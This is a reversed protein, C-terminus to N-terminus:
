EDKNKPPKPKPPWPGKWKNPRKRHWPMRERRPDAKEGGKDGKKRRTGRQHKPKNSPRRNSRHSAQSPPPPPQPQAITQPPTGTTPSPQAATTPETPAPAPQPCFPCFPRLKDAIWTIGTYDAVTDLVAKGGEIIEADTPGKPTSTTPGPVVLPPAGPIPPLPVVPRPDQPPEPEEPDHGDPDIYRLPNNYAYQYKNLSQPRRLDGYFTPNDAADAVFYYLEDPGGTFEDASTFRGQTSSYYRALFYDLGTEIDRQKSTFKQRVGDSVGFGMGVTRGGIGSGLEEGFPMYDHRSVVGASSNTVVRPSGLHDSVLYRTGNSNAATPEVTAVLGSAGYIYEKTLSGTAGDFEAVLKASIGYIFRRNEGVLKRVRQGEGDYVYATVNDVKRLKNEADYTYSHAGDNLLNGATDYSGGTIRNNSANFFLSQGGGGLAIWRNGYRDYGNTQSWGAGGNEVSTTLRNLADYGFTQTYSLGGGSYSITQVNGNNNTTGYAYTISVVSTPTGSTGLKVQNVQLRNNYTTGHVLGNAFTQASLGNSSAYGIASVSAAPAYSTAASSLTALRGASDNTHSIVRRDAAGPVAPYTENQAAGNAFYSAEILYNVSDTRQYKRVVRGLQDYGNYTGESSGAGYTVAVLRGTSSGRTYVPAGAPLSQSDYFYNVPPTQPNDNYSRSTVRNLADYVFTSTINRADLKSTLNGNNDYGYIVTGSEPNTASTLRSLSDYIFSRTQVGQTVTTLNDLLDYQYTTQYNAATPDEYVDTLRGLADSVSKRMKGAQDTVTVQNGSYSTSVVSNDPTTVSTVRGLGDFVTTTWVATESQWPRFPNSTQHARGLADYQQQTAIYNTGGEYQRSESTRGLGDYVVKSVLLNDNNANLDSTTTVIRNVDDYSFASQNAVATGVARRVQTPRDLADNFYGSAVIGNTDEGDIPQGLFYDFQTYTIHGLANTIKTAFAFSTQGTLESPPANARADGDPAGFRDAFEFTTANGRRDIVKVINGAVDYQQHSSLPTNPSLIWGTNKTVNGRTQYNIDTFNPGGPCNSIGDCLGSIGSRPMLPAHLGDNTYDDYEITTRAKLTGAADFVQQERPLSRMHVSTTTYDIANVSNVKLYETNTRRILAGPAGSGFGYEYTDSVNNFPVTDDYLFTKKSVLNTDALKFITEHLRPDNPPAQDAGGPWWAVSARQQWSNTTEQLLTTGNSDFVETESERGDRWESYETPLQDLSNFPNGFFYHKSRAVLTGSANKIDVTVPAGSLGSSYTTRSELNVGDPYVRRETVRRYIGDYPNTANGFDYEMAGGTPLEVRALESYVNYYFRYRRQGDPLWLSSVVTPNHHSTASGDLDPFLQEFTWTGTPDGPQTTRLANALSTKSIRIMRQAGGFGKFTIQDCTGYPAVDAVSYAINIQRNLSDTISAVNTGSYTFTLKNGNRDRMWTVLGQDIRYRTGDRLMLNGSPRVVTPTQSSNDFITTDSVFTAASGDATVFVTGRSAGQGSGCAFPLPQGNSAQDRLEFETGGPVTFTLRTLSLDGCQVGPKRGQLVGPGYGPSVVGWWTPWPFRLDCTDTLQCNPAPKPKRIRWHQEISLRMTLGAGGRGAVSLLPLAFNLNGNYLNVNEFGSVSYSGAPAGPTLASPTSGDTVSTFTQANVPSVFFLLVITVAFLSRTFAINSTSYKSM